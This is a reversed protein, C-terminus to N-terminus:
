FSASDVKVCPPEGGWCGVISGICRFRTRYKSQHFLNLNAIMPHIHSQIRCDGHHKTIQKSLFQTPTHIIILTWKHFLQLGIRIALPSYFHMKHLLLLLFSACLPLKWNCKLLPITLFVISFLLLVCVRSYSDDRQVQFNCSSRNKM